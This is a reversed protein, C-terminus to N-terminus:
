VSLRPSPGETKSIRSRLSVTPVSPDVTRPRVSSLPVRRRSSLASPARVQYHRGTTGDVLYSPYPGAPTLSPGELSECTVYSGWTGSPRYWFSCVSLFESSEFM